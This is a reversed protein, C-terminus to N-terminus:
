CNRILLPFVGPPTLSHLLAHTNFFDGHNAIPTPASAHYLSYIRAMNQQIVMRPPTSIM